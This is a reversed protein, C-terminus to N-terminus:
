AALPSVDPDFLSWSEEPLVFTGQKPRAGVLGKAALMKVAERTVSRSVGHEKTLDAESPFPRDAYDGSVIARGLANQLGYTLNRGFEQM